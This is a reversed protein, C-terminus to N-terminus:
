RLVGRYRDFRHTRIRQRLTSVLLLVGGAFISLLAVKVLWHLAGICAIEYCGFGALTILGGLMLAWGVRWEARNYFGGWFRRIERDTPELQGSSAAIDVLVKQGAAEAALAPDEAMMREFRALDQLPLEGDLWATLLMQAETLPPDEVGSSGGGDPRTDASM